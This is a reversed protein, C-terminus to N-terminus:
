KACFPNSADLGPINFMHLIFNIIFPIVFLLAVAILRRFFRKTAEKVKNEDDESIAKIFDLVSLIIMLPPLTYRIIRIIKFIWNVIGNGLSGCYSSKVEKKCLDDIDDRMNTCASMCKKAKGTTSIYVGSNRFSECILNLETYLDDFDSNNDCSYNHKENLTEKMWGIYDSYTQCGSFNYKSPDENKNKELVLIKKTKEWEDNKTLRWREDTDANFGLFDMAEVETGDMFLAINNADGGGCGLRLYAIAISDPCKDYRSPIGYYIEKTCPSNNVEGVYQAANGTSSSPMIGCNGSSDCDSLDIEFGGNSTSNTFLPSSNNALYIPVQSPVVAQINITVMKKWSDGQGYGYTCYKDKASVNILNFCFFAAFCVFYKIYSKKM